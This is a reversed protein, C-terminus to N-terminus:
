EVKLVGAIMDMGCTYRYEGAKRPTVEVTVTKELPLPQRVGFEKMVIETACTREIKRTVVLKVPKGRKVSVSAPVFGDKTVTLEVVQAGKKTTAPAKGAELARASWPALLAAALPLALLKSRNM